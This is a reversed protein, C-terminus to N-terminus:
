RCITIATRPTLSKIYAAVIRHGDEAYYRAYHELREAGKPLQVKEEVQQMLQSHRREAASSCAVLGFALIIFSRKM